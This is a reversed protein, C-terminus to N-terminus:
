AHSMALCVVRVTSFLLCDVLPSSGAHAVLVIHCKPNPLGFAQSSVERWGIDAYGADKIADVQVKLFPQKWTTDQM